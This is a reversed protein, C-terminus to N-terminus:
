EKFVREILHDETKYFDLQLKTQLYQPANLLEMMSKWPGYVKKAGEAICKELTLPLNEMVSEPLIVTSEDFCKNNKVLENAVLEALYYDRAKYSGDFNDIIVENNVISIKYPNFDEMFYVEGVDLSDDFHPNEVEIIVDIEEEEDDFDDYGLTSFDFPNEPFPKLQNEAINKPAIDEEGAIKKLLRIIEENQAEINKNIKILESLDSM